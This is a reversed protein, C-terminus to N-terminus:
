IETTEAETIPEKWEKYTNQEPGKALIIVKQDKITLITKTGPAQARLDYAKKDAIRYEPLLMQPCDM